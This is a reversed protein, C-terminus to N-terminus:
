VLRVTIESPQMLLEKWQFSAERGSRRLVTFVHPYKKVIRCKEKKITIGMSTGETETIEVVAGVKTKDRLNMVERIDM